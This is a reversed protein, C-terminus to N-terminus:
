VCVCVCVLRHLVMALNYNKSTKPWDPPVQSCTSEPPTQRVNLRKESKRERLKKHRHKDWVDVESASFSWVTQRASQWFTRPRKEEATEADTDPHDIGPPPHLTNRLSPPTTPSLTEKGRQRHTRWERLPLEEKDLPTSLEAPERM